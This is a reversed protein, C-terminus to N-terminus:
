YNLGVYGEHTIRAVNFTLVAKRKKKSHCEVVVYSLHMKRKKKEKKKRSFLM